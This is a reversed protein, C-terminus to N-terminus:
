LEDFDDDDCDDADDDVCDGRPPIITPPCAPPTPGRRPGGGCGRIRWQRRGRWGEMMRVADIVMRMMILDLNGIVLIYYSNGTRSPKVTTVHEAADTPQSRSMLM